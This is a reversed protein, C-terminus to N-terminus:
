RPRYGGCTGPNSKVQISCKASNVCQSCRARAAQSAQKELRHREIRAADEARRAKQEQYIQQQAAKREAERAERIPREREYEERYQAKRLAEEKLSKEALEENKIYKYPEAFYNLSIMDNVGPMFRQLSKSIDEMGRRLLFGDEDVVIANAIPAVKEEYEPANKNPASDIIAQCYKQWDAQSIRHYYNNDIYFTARAYKPSSDNKIIVEVKEALSKKNFMYRALQDKGGLYFYYFAAGLILLWFLIWFM